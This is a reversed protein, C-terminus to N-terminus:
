FGEHKKEEKRKSKTKPKIKSATGLDVGVALLILGWLILDSLSYYNTTLVEMM